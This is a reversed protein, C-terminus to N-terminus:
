PAPAEMDTENRKEGRNGGYWRHEDGDKRRQQELATQFEPERVSGAVHELIGDLDRMTGVPVFQATNGIFGRSHRPIKRAIEVVNGDVIRTEARTQGILCILAGKVLCRDESEVIGSIQLRKADRGAIIPKTEICSM